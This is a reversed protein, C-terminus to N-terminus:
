VDLGLDNVFHHDPNITEAPIGLQIASIQIVRQLIYERTWESRKDIRVYPVLDGVTRPHAPLQDALQQTIILTSIWLLLASPLLMWGTAGLMYLLGIGLLPLGTILPYALSKRCRLRPLQPANIAQKLEAWQRRINGNLYDQLRSEPRVHKRPVGLQEVLASRIRYFGAQSLCRTDAGDEIGLRAFVYDALKRPTVLGPADADDIAIDFEKEISLVLEVSDLGVTQGQNYHIPKVTASSILSQWPNRNKQGPKSSFRDRFFLIKRKIQGFRYWLRM